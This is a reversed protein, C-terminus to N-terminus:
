SLVATIVDDHGISSRADIRTSVAPSRRVILMASPAGTRATARRISGPQLAIVLDEFCGCDNRDVVSREVVRDDVQCSHRM